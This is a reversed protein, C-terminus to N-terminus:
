FERGFPTLQPGFGGVHCGQCPEGTQVAFAPVAAANTVGLGAAAPVAIAAIAALKRLIASLSM